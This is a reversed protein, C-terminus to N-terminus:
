INELYMKGLNTRRNLVRTKMDLNYNAVKIDIGGKNRLCYYLLHSPRETVWAHQSSVITLLMAYVALMIFCSLPLTTFRVNIILKPQSVYGTPGGMYIPTAKLAPLAENHYLCGTYPLGLSILNICLFM